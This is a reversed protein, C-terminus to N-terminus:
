IYISSLFYPETRPNEAEKIWWLKLSCTTNTLYRPCMRLVLGARCSRMIYYLVLCLLWQLHWALLSCLTSAVSNCTVLVERPCTLLFWEHCHHISPLYSNHILVVLVPFWSCVTQSSYLILCLLLLLHLHIPFAAALGGLKMYWASSWTRTKSRDTQLTTLSPLLSKPWLTFFHQTLASTPLVSLFFHPKFNSPSM